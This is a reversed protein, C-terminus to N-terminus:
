SRGASRGTPWGIYCVAIRCTLPAHKGLSSFVYRWGQPRSTTFYNVEQTTIFGSADADFAEVIQQLHMLDLCELAWVDSEGVPRQPTAGQAVARRQDDLRQTYYDHIALVLHRAKM